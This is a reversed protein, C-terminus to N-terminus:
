KKPYFIKGIVLSIVAAFLFMVGWVGFLLTIFPKAPATQYAAVFSGDPMMHHFLCYTVAFIAVAIILSCAALINWKKRM